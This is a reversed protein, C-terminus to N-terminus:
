CGLTFVLIALSSYVRTKDTDQDQQDLARLFQRTMLAPLFTTLALAVQHLFAVFLTWGHMTIYMRWILGSIFSPHWGFYPHQTVWRSRTKSDNASAAVSRDFLKSLYFSRCTYPLHPLLNVSSKEGAKERNWADQLVPMLWSFTIVDMLSSEVQHSTTPIAKASPYTYSSRTAQPPGRPMTVIIFWAIGTLFLAANKALEDKRSWAAGAM